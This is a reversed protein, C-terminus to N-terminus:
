EMGRWRALYAADDRGGLRGAADRLLQGTRTGQLWVGARVLPLSTSFAAFVTGPGSPGVVENNGLYVLFADPSHDALERGIVRVVHSNIAAMAANVVEFRRDPFSESLLAELMRGVGFAADPTGMAASGGLLVIRVTGEPKDAALRTVVPERALAPPFFRWGFRPNTTLVGGDPTGEAIPVLFTAPAGYGALRLGGELAALLLAPVAVATVLPFVWRRWGTLKTRGRHRSM